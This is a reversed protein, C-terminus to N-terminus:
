LTARLEKTIQRDLNALKTALDQPSGGGETSGTGDRARTYAGGLEQLLHQSQRLLEVARAIHAKDGSSTYVDDGWLALHDAALGRRTAFESLPRGCWDALERQDSESLSGDALGALDDALSEFGVAGSVCDGVKVEGGLLEVADAVSCEVASAANFKGGPGEIVYMPFAGTDKRGPLSVSPRLPSSWARRFEDGSMAEYRSTASFLYIEGRAPDYGRVIRWTPRGGVVLPVLVALGRHLQSKLTRVGLDDTPCALLRAGKVGARETAAYVPDTSAARVTDLRREPSYFFAFPQASFGALKKASVVQGQAACLVRLCEFLGADEVGGPIDRPLDVLVAGASPPGPESGGDPLPSESGAVVQGPYTAKIWALEKQADKVGSSDPHERIVRELCSQADAPNREIDLSVHALLTLAEAQQADLPGQLGLVEQCAAKAPEAKGQEYYTHAMQLEAEAHISPDGGFQAIISAYQELAQDYEQDAKYIDAIERMAHKVWPSGSKGYLKALRGYADLALQPENLFNRYVYGLRYLADDAKSHGPFETAMRDFLRVADAYQGSNCAQEAATYLDDGGQQLHRALLMVSGAVLVVAAIALIAIRRTMGRETRTTAVGAPFRALVRSGAILERTWASDSHVVLSDM